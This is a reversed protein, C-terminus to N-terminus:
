DKMLLYFWFQKEVFFCIFICYLNCSQSQCKRFNIQMQKIHEYMSHVAADQITYGM